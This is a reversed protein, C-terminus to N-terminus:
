AVGLWPIENPDGDIPLRGPGWGPQAPLGLRLLEALLVPAGPGVVRVVRLALGNGLLMRTRELDEAFWRAERVGRARLRSRVAVTGERSRLSWTLAADGLVLSCAGAKPPRAELGLLAAVPTLDVRDQVVGARVLLGEYSEVVRRRIAVGLFRGGSVKVTDVLAEDEPYPLSRTLRFRALGRPDVRNGGRGLLAIRATGAPLLIRVRRTPAGLEGLVRRVADLVEDGRLLNPALASVVLAGPELGVRSVRELTGGRVVGGSVASADFALILRRPGLAIAV